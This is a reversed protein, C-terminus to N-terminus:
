CCRTPVTSSRTMRLRAAVLQFLTNLQIFQLGTEAFIDARSVIPFARDFIGNTRADRYHVPNGLLRGARDLLGYDVGWTDIGIGAM